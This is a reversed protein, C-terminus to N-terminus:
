GYGWTVLQWKGGAPRALNWSWDKYEYDTEWVGGGEKPSHFDSEFVICQTFNQGEMIDNMWAINDESNCDDSTYRISHLECGEWSNFEKRILEIAEDMDAKSYIESTGYDISVDNTKAQGCATVLMTLALIIGTVIRKM